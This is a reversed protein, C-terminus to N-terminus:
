AAEGRGSTPRVKRSALWEELDAELVGFRRNSLKVTVPGEGRAIYRDLTKRSIRWRAAVENLTHIIM